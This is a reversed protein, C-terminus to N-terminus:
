KGVCTTFGFKGFQNICTVGTITGILNVLLFSILVVVLGILAYFFTKHSADLEKADGRALIMKIGAYMLFIVSVTGIFALLANTLLTFVVPICDLTPVGKIVCDKGILSQSLSNWDM